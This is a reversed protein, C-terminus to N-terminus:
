RGSTGQVGCGDVSPMRQHKGGGYAEPFAPIDPVSSREQSPAASAGSDSQNKMVRNAQQHVWSTVTRFRPESDRSTTTTATNATDRNRHNGLTRPTPVNAWSFRPGVDLGLTQSNPKPLGQGSKNTVYTTPGSEPIDIVADGFGSSLSSVESIRPNKGNAAQRYALPLVPMPPPDDRSQMPQQSVAIPAANQILSNRSYTQGQSPDKEYKAARLQIMPNFFASFGRSHTQIESPAATGFVGSAHYLSESASNQSKRKSGCCNFCGFADTKLLRLLICVVFSLVLVGGVAGFAILGNSAEPTLPPKNAAASAITPQGGTQSATTVSDPLTRVATPDLIASLTSLPTGSITTFAVLRSETSDDEYDSDLDDGSKTSDIAQGQAKLGAAGTAQTNSLSVRDASQLQAKPTPFARTFEPTVRTLGGVKSPTPTAAAEPSLVRTTGPLAAVPPASSSPTDPTKSSHKTPTTTIIAPRSTEVAASSPKSSTIAVAEPESATTAIDTPKSEIEAASTKEPAAVATSSQGGLIADLASDTVSGAGAIADGLTGRETAASASGSDSASSVEDGVEGTSVSDSDVAAPLQRPSLRRCRRPRSDRSINPAREPQFDRLARRERATRETSPPSVPPRPTSFVAGFHNFPAM